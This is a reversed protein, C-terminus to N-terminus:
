LVGIDGRNGLRTAGGVGGDPNDSNYGGHGLQAYSANVELSDYSISVMNALAVAANNPNVDRFFNIQGNAIGGTAPTTYGIAGVVEGVTLGLSALVAPDGGTVVLNGEGDD